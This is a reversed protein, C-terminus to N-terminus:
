DLIKKNLPWQHLLLYMYEPLFTKLYQDNQIQDMLELCKGEFDNRKITIPVESYKQSRELISLYNINPQKLQYYWNCTKNFVRMGNFPIRRGKDDFLNNM